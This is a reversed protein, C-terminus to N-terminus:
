ARAAGRQRPTLTVPATGPASGSQLAGVVAAVADPRFGFAVLAPGPLASVHAPNWLAVHLAPVGAGDAREFVAHAAAVAAPTLPLRGASVFVLAQAGALAADLAEPRLGDAGAVTGTGSREDVDGLTLHRVEFAADELAQVLAATARVTGDTAAGPAVADTGVVVVPRGPTLRPPSGLAVLARRAADAMLGRDDADDYAAAPRVYTSALAAVREASASMAAPDLRGDRVARELARVVAVHEAVPGILLPADVGAAVARVAAEPAPWRDAIARMNLADSFIVGTFGLEGRLTALTAASMTAPHEPDLARVLLHATMVAAAGAEIGARFPTWEVAELRARDVDLYPLDLHSDVAVDGHGPFHKVTAAVGATQLGRVFAAVHRAVFDPDAGFAREAIVPNRPDLAVDAVPAFDVDVGAARLSRATAAAVAETLAPDDIAGLAMAAPLGARRGAARGRRGGPRHDRAATPRRRGSAGRRGAGPHTRPRTNRGFLCVGAIPEDALLAREDPTLRTGALDIVVLAM